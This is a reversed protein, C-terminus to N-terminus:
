FKNAKTVNQKLNEQEFCRKLTKIEIKLYFHKSKTKKHVICGAVKSLIQICSAVKLAFSLNLKSQRSKALWPFKQKLTFFKRSM